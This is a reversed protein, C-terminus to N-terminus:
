KRALTQSLLGIADMLQFEADPNVDARKLLPLIENMTKALYKTAWKHSQSSKWCSQVMDLLNDTRDIVKADVGYPQIVLGDYYEEKFRIIDNPSATDDWKKTMAEVVNCTLAPFPYIRLDHVTKTTDEPVDHLYMAAVFEIPYGLLLAVRGCRLPHIAYPDFSEKRTQSGHADVCYLAANVLLKSDSTPLTQTQTTM